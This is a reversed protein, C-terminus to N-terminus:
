IRELEKGIQRIVNKIENEREVSPNETGSIYAVLLSQPIGIRRAVESVNLEPHLLFVRSVGVPEPNDYEFSEFSVDEDIDEWHIGFKGITYNNRQKETANMLRAYYLISQWLTRGDDTEIFIKDDVFWLKAAIM